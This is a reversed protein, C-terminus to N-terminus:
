HLSVLLHRKDILTRLQLVTTVILIDIINKTNETSVYFFISVKKNKWHIEAFRNWFTKWKIHKLVIYSRRNAFPDSSQTLRLFFIM